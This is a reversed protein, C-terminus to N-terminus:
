GEKIQKQNFIQFSQLETLSFDLLTLRHLGKKSMLLLHKPLTLCMEYVLTHYMLKLFASSPSLPVYFFSLM